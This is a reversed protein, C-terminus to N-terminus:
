KVTPYHTPTYGRKAGEAWTDINQYDFLKSTVIIPEQKAKPDAMAKEMATAIAFGTAYPDPDWTGTLRGEKVAAIADLDGNIGFIMVGDPNKGNYIKKGAAITSASAGLASSDNYAWFVQVDPYRILVDSILTAANSTSDKVNDVRTLVELGAAKAAATMCKVNNNIAEVPPGGIVVVKAGPKQKAIWAAQDDYPGGPNCTDIQWWVTNSVGEGTSNLGIVPIGQARARDYAGAVANPDLSWAGIAKAGLTILTDVHSVQRDPSLNADLVRIAWGKEKASISLSNNIMQQGPQAAVPSIYGVLTEAHAASLASSCGLLAVFITKFPKFSM